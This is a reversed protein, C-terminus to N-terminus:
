LCPNLLYECAHLAPARGSALARCRIPSTELPRIEAPCRISRGTKKWPDETGPSQGPSRHVGPNGKERHPEAAPMTPRFHRRLTECLRWRSRLIAGARRRLSRFRPDFSRRVVRPLSWPRRHRPTQLRFRNKAAYTMSFAFSLSPNSNPNREAPNPIQEVRSPNRESFIQIDNRHIQVEKM